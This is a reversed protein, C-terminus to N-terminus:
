RHKSQVSGAIAQTRVDEREYAGSRRRCEIGPPELYFDYQTACARLFGAMDYGASRLVARHTLYVIGGTSAFFARHLLRLSSRVVAPRRARLTLLLQSELGVHALEDAVLTRCLVKLRQCGTAVELARYFVSAILEATILLYLRLELGGLRRLCCFVFDTWDTHKPPLDHDEMFKRLLAAHRQQERIFLELIRILPAADHQKAFRWASFLLANGESQEGLQFTAISRAILRREEPKLVDSLGAPVCRPHEAHYEFHNLWIELDRFMRADERDDGM